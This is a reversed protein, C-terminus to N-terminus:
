SEVAGVVVGDGLGAGFPFPQTLLTGTWTLQRPESAVEPIADHSPAVVYLPPSVLPVVTVPLQVSRAPFVAVPLKGTLYSLVGGAVVATELGAGLAAPQYRIGTVIEPLPLSV